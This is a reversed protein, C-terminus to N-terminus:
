ACGSKRINAHIFGAVSTPLRSRGGPSLLISGGGGDKLLDSISELTDSAALNIEDLLVWDGNRAAKVLSGEVFSFAFAKSLQSSQRELNALDHSFKTWAAQLVPKDMGDLKRKKKQQDPKEEEVVIPPPTAFFNDAMKVAESWLVIIRKWQQKSWCKDLVDLFRKNKRLSFTKAFLDDFNEKLPVALSRVDVPKYGGLLDGAETQQSLNIATLSYGLIDALQQVVTTKGTGTEGVLLVPEALRVAVGVQELLRVAHNTTAFPRKQTGLSKKRRKLSTLDKRKELRARGVVLSRESDKFSPSHGDMLLDVRQTPVHLEQAIRSVVLRRADSTHLSGAFCDAAESFMEDFLSDSLLDGGSKVGASVFLANTRSCWKFLDRPSIQRGMSTRSIAYFSPERYLKQVATYTSLISPSVGHLLPYKSNVISQLESEAPMQVNVRMWLRSGLLNITSVEDKSTPATRATTILRFGRAAKIREGRSPIDLEGREILPLLVSLVETPAKDIDEVLVWRGERVATALVGPRWEFSGPTNGTTYTGILLKADTQGSLHISVMTDLANLTKALQHVLFTKGSGAQGTVLIPQSSRLALALASINSRTTPTDVIEIASKSAGPHLNAPVGFSPGPRHMGRLRPTLIGCLDVTMPSLDASAIIRSSSDNTTTNEREQELAEAM